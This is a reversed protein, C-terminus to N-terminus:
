ERADRNGAHRLVIDTLENLFRLVASREGDDLDDVLTRIDATLPSIHRLVEDRALPTMHIELRRRDGPHPARGLHGRAELRDVIATVAGTTVDLRRALETPGLEGAASVHTMAALETQSVELRRALAVHLSSLAVDLRRAATVLEESAVRAQEHTAPDHDPSSRTSRSSM